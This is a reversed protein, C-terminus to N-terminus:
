SLIAKDFLLELALYWQHVSSTESHKFYHDDKAKIQKSITRLLTKKKHKEIGTIEIYGFNDISVDINELNFSNQKKWEEVIYGNNLNWLILKLGNLMRKLMSYSPRKAPNFELCQDLIQGVLKGIPLELQNDVNKQKNNSCWENSDNTYRFVWNASLYGEYPYCYQKHLEKFSKLLVTAPLSLNPRTINNAAIRLWFRDISSGLLKRYYHSFRGEKFRTECSQKNYIGANFNETNITASTSPTPQIPLRHSSLTAKVNEIHIQNIRNKESERVVVHKDKIAGVAFNRGRDSGNDQETDKNFVDKRVRSQAERLANLCFLNGGKDASVSLPISKSDWALAIRFECDIRKSSTGSYPSLPPLLLRQEMELSESRQRNFDKYLSNGFCTTTSSAEDGKVKTTTPNECDNSILSQQQQILQFENLRENREYDILSYAYSKSFWNAIM